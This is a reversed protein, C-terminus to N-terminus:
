YGILESPYLRQPRTLAIEDFRQMRGKETKELNETAFRM